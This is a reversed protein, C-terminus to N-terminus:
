RFKLFQKYLAYIRELLEDEGYIEEEEGTEVEGEGESAVVVEAAETARM